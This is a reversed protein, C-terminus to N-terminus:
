VGDVPKEKFDGFMENFYELVDQGKVAFGCAQLYGVFSECIDTWSSEPGLRISLEKTASTSNDWKYALEFFSKDSTM